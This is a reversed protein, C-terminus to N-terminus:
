FFHDFNVQASIRTADKGNTQEDSDGATEDETQQRLIPAHVIVTEYEVM